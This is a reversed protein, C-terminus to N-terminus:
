QHKATEFGHKLALASLSYFVAYYSRNVAALLRDEKLLIEADALCEDAKQLAIVITESELSM